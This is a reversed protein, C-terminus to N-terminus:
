SSQVHYVLVSSVTVNGAAVRLHVTANAPVTVNGFYSGATTGVPIRAYVATGQAIVLEAGHEAARAEVLYRVLVSTAATDNERFSAVSAGQPIATSTGVRSDVTGVKGAISPHHRALTRPAVEDMDKAHVRSAYVCGTKAVASPGSCDAADADASIPATATLRTGAATDERWATVPVTGGNPLTVTATAPAAATGWVTAHEDGVLANVYTQREAKTAITTIAQMNSAVGAALAGVAIIVLVVGGIGEAVGAGARDTLVQRISRTRTPSLLM